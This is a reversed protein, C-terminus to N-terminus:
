PHGCSLSCLRGGVRGRGGQKSQKGEMMSSAEVLPRSAPEQEKLVIFTGLALAGQEKLGRSVQGARLSPDRSRSGSGHLIKFKEWGVCRTVGM